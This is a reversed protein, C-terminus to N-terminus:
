TSIHSYNVDPDANMSFGSGIGETIRPDEPRVVVDQNIVVVNSLVEVM